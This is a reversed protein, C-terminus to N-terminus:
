GMQGSFYILASDNNTHVNTSDFFKLGFLARAQPSAFRYFDSSAGCLGLKNGRRWICDGGKREGAAASVM